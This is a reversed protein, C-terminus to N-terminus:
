YTTHGPATTTYRSTLVRRKLAYWHTSMRMRSDEVDEETASPVIHKPPTDVAHIYTSSAPDVTSTDRHPVALLAAARSLVDRSLM